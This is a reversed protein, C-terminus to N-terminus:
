DCWWPPPNWNCSPWPYPGPPDTPPEGGGGGDCSETWKNYYSTRVGAQQNVGCGIVRAGVLETKSADSFYEWETMFGGALPGLEGAAAPEVSAEDAPTPGTGADACGNASVGFAASALVLVVWGAFSPFRHKTTM